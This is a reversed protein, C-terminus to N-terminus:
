TKSDCTLHGLRPRSLICSVVLLYSLCRQLQAEFRHREVRLRSSVNDLMVALSM